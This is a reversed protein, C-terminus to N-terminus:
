CSHGADAESPPVTPNVKFSQLIANCSRGTAKRFEGLLLKKHQELEDVRQSARLLDRQLQAIESERGELVKLIEQWEEDRKQMKAEVEMIDKKQNLYSEHICKRAAMTRLYLTEKKQLEEEKFQSKVREHKLSAQVKSLEQTIENREAVNRANEKKQIQFMSSLLEADANLRDVAERSKALLKDMKDLVPVNEKMMKANKEALEARELKLNNNEYVKSQLEGELKHRDRAQQRYQKEKEECKAQLQEVQLELPAHRQAKSAQLEHELKMCRQHWKTVESRLADAPVTKSVGRHRDDPITVQTGFKENRLGKDLVQMERLSSLLRAQMPTLETTTGGKETQAQMSESYTFPGQDFVKPPMAELKHHVTETKSVTNVVKEHMEVMAKDAYSRNSDMDFHLVAAQFLIGNLLLSILADRYNLMYVIPELAAFGQDPVPTAMVAKIGKEMEHSCHDWTLQNTFDQPLAVFDQLAHFYYRVDSKLREMVFRYKDRAIDSHQEDQIRAAERMSKSLKAHDELNEKLGKINNSWTKATDYIEDFNRADQKHIKESTARVRESIDENHEVHRRMWGSETPM